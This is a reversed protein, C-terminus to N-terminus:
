KKEEAATTNKASQVRIDTKGEAIMELLLERSLYTDDPNYFKNEQVVFRMEKPKDPNDDKKSVGQPLKVAPVPNSM